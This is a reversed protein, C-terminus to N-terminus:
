IGSPKNSIMLRMHNNLLGLDIWKKILKPNLDAIHDFVITEFSANRNRLLIKELSSFDGDAAMRDFGNKLFLISKQSFDLMNANKELLINVYKLNGLRLAIILPSLAENDQFNPNFDQREMIRKVTEFPCRVMAELIPAMVKSSPQNLDAGRELLLNIAELDNKIIAWFLPPPDGINLDIEENLLIELILPRYKSAYSLISFGENNVVNLRAGKEKLQDFALIDNSRLAEFLPTEGRLNKMEMDVNCSLLESILKYNKCKVAIHLLSAGTHPHCVNLKAGNQRLFNVLNWEQALAATIILSTGNLDRMDFSLKQSELISIALDSRECRLLHFTFVEKEKINFKYAALDLQDKSMEQINRVSFIERLNSIEKSKNVYKEFDDQDQQGGTQSRIAESDPMTEALFLDSILAYELMSILIPDASSAGSGVCSYYNEKQRFVSTVEHRSLFLVVQQASDGFNDKLENIYFIKNVGIRNDKYYKGMERIFDKINGITLHISKIFHQATGPIMSLLIPNKRRFIIPYNMVIPHFELFQKNDVLLGNPESAKQKMLIKERNMKNFTLSFSKNGEGISQFGAPCNPSPFYVQALNLERKEIGKESKKIVNRLNDVTEGIGSELLKTLESFFTMFDAEAKQNIATPFDQISRVIVPFRVPKLEKSSRHYYVEQQALYDANAQNLHILTSKGGAYCSFTIMARCNKKNLFHLFSPYEKKSIGSPQGVDGHGAVFILKSKYSKDSKEVFLNFFSDLPPKTRPLSLAQTPTIKKLTGDAKFDLSKLLEAAQNEGTTSTPIFLLFEEGLESNEQFISWEAAKKLIMKEVVLIFSLNRVTNVGCLVSRTTIFPIRSELLDRILCLMAGNNDPGELDCIFALHMDIKAIKPRENANTLSPPAFLEHVRLLKIQLSKIKKAGLFLRNEELQDEITKLISIARSNLILPDTIDAICTKLNAISKNITELLGNCKNNGKIFLDEEMSHLVNFFKNIASNAHM